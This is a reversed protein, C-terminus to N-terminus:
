AEPPPDFISKNLFMVGMIWSAPAEGMRMGLSLMVALAGAVFDADSMRNGQVAKRERGAVMVANVIQEWLEKDMMM